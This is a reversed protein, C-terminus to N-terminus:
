KGEFTHKEANKQNKRRRKNDGNQKGENICMNVSKTKNAKKNALRHRSCRDWVQYQYRSGRLQNKKDRDKM